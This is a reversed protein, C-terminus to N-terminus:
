SVSGRRPESDPPTAPESAKRTKITAIVVALGGAGILVGGLISHRVIGRHVFVGPRIARDAYQKDFPAFDWWRFVMRLIPFEEGFQQKTLQGQQYRGGAQWEHLATLWFATYACGVLLLINGISRMRKM